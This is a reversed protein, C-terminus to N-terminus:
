DNREDLTIAGYCGSLRKVTDDLKELELILKYSSRLRPNLESFLESVLDTLNAGTTRGTQSVVKAKEESENIIGDARVVMARLQGEADRRLSEFGARREANVAATAGVRRSQEIIDHLLVAYQKELLEASDLAIESGTRDALARLTRLQVRSEADRM